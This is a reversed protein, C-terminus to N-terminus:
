GQWITDGAESKNKQKAFHYRLFNFKVGHLHVYTDWKSKTKQNNEDNFFLSLQSCLHEEEEEQNRSNDNRM